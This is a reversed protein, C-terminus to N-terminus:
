KQEGLFITTRRYEGPRNGKHEQRDSRRHDAEPVAARRRPAATPPTIEPTVPPREVDPSTEMNGPLPGPTAGVVPTPGASSGAGVAREPAGMQGSPSPGVALRRLEWIVAGVAITLLVIAVLLAATKGFRPLMPRVPRPADGAAVHSATSDDEQSSVFFPLVLASANARRLEFTFEVCSAFREGPDHALARMVVNALEVSVSANLASPPQLPAREALRALGEAAARDIDSCDEPFYPATGTLTQYALAGLAWQDSAPTAASPQELQEPPVYGPSGVLSLKSDATLDSEPVGAYGLDILKVLGTSGILVNSPSVDRHVIGRNALYDLAKAVQEFMDLVAPWDLRPWAEVLPVMGELLDMTLYLHNRWTGSDYVRVLNLYELTKGLAAERQFRQVDEDICSSSLLLKLACLQRTKRDVVRFIVSRRGGGLKAEVRYRGDITAGEPLDELEVDLLAQRFDGASAFRDHKNLAIARAVVANLAPSVEEAVLSAVEPSRGEKAAKLEADSRGPWPGDGTLLAFLVCGAAYIDWSQNAEAGHFAEPPLYQLTGMLVNGTTLATAGRSKSVGFDVVKVLEGGGSSPVLMLNNPELDRHLVGNLHMAELADLIQAMIAIARTSSLPGDRELLEQLSQGELFEM